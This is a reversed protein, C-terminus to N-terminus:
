VSFLQWTMRSLSFVLCWSRSQVDSWCSSFLAVSSWQGTLMEELVALELVGQPLGGPGISPRDRVSFSCPSRAGRLLVHFSYPSRPAGLVSFSYSSRAARLLISFSYPSKAASFVSLSYPSRAASLLISFSYPSRAARLLVSFSYPSKAASLLVAANTLPSPIKTQGHHYRGQRRLDESSSTM